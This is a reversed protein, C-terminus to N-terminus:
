KEPHNNWDIKSTLGSILWFLINQQSIFLSQKCQELHLFTFSSLCVCHVPWHTPQFILLFALNMTCAQSRLSRIINSIPVKSLIENGLHPVNQLCPLLITLHWHSTICIPHTLARQGVTMWPSLPSSLAWPLLWPQPHIEPVSSFIWSRCPGLAELFFVGPLFSSKLDFAASFSWYCAFTM